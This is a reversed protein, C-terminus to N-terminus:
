DWCEEDASVQPKQRVPSSLIPSSSLPPRPSSPPPTRPPSPCKQDNNSPGGGGGSPSSSRRPSTSNHNNDVNSNKYFNNRNLRRNNFTNSKPPSSWSNGENNGGGNNNNNNFRRNFRGGGGGGGRFGGGGGGNYQSQPSTSRKPSHSDGGGGGGGGGNGGYSPKFFRPNNYKPNSNYPKDSQNQNYPKRFQNNNNNNGGFRRNDNQGEDSNSQEASCQHVPEEQHQHKHSCCTKAPKPTQVYCSLFPEHITSNCVQSMSPCQASPALVHQIFSYTANCAQSTPRVAVQCAHDPFSPVTPVQQKVINGDIDIAIGLNKLIDLIEIANELKFIDFALTPYVRRERQFNNLASVLHTVTQNVHMKQSSALSHYWSSSQISEYLIMNPTKIPTTPVSVTPQSNPIYPQMVGFSTATPSSLSPTMSSISSDSNYSMLTSQAYTSNSPQGIRNRPDNHMTTSPYHTPIPVNTPTTVIPQGYHLSSTSPEPQTQNQLMINAVAKTDRRFIRPDLFTTKMLKDINNPKNVTLGSLDVEYLFYPIYPFTLRGDIEECLYDRATVLIGRTDGARVPSPSAITEYNDHTPSAIPTINPSIRESDIELKQMKKTSIKAYLTSSYKYYEVNENNINENNHNTDFKVIAGERTILHVNKRLVPEHQLDVVHDSSHMHVYCSKNSSKSSTPSHKQKDEKSKSKTNRENQLSLNEEDSEHKEEASQKEMKNCQRENELKSKNAQREDSSSCSDTINIVEIVEKKEFPVRRKVEENSCRTDCDSEDNVGNSSDIKKIKEPTTSCNDNKADDDTINKSSRKQGKQTAKTTIVSKDKSSSSLDDNCSDFSVRRKVTSKTITINKSSKLRKIKPLGAAVKITVTKNRENKGNTKIKESIKRMPPDNNDLSSSAPCEIDVSKNNDDSYLVSMMAEVDESTSKLENQLFDDNPVEKTHTEENLDKECQNKTQDKRKHIKLKRPKYDKALIPKSIDTEQNNADLPEKVIDHEKVNDIISNSYSKASKEPSQSIHEYPPSVDDENIAERHEQLSPVTLEDIEEKENPSLIFNVLTENNDSTNINSKDEPSHTIHVENAADDNPPTSEILLVCGDNNNNNNDQSAKEIPSPSFALVNESADFDIMENTIDSDSATHAFNESVYGPVSLPQQDNSQLTEDMEANNTGRIQTSILNEDDDDDDLEIYDNDTNKNNDCKINDSKSTMTDPSASSNECLMDYLAKYKIVKDKLSLSTDKRIEQAATEVFEITEEEGEILRYQQDTDKYESNNDKTQLENVNNIDQCNEDIVLRSDEDDIEIIEGSAIMLNDEVANAEQPVCNEKKKNITEILDFIHNGHIIDLRHLQKLNLGMLQARTNIQYDNLREKQQMTLFNLDQSELFDYEVADEITLKNIIREKDQTDIVLPQDAANDPNQLTNLFQLVEDKNLQQIFNTDVDEFSEPPLLLMQLIHYRLSDKMWEALESNHQFQCSDGKPCLLGMYYYKCPFESHLYPCILQIPCKSTDMFSPCPRKVTKETQTSCSTKTGVNKKLVRKKVPARRKPKENPNNFDLKPRTGKINKIKELKVKPLKVRQSPTEPVAFTRQDVPVDSCGPEIAMTTDNLNLLAKKKRKPGIVKQKNVNLLCSSTSGYIVRVDVDVCSSQEQSTSTTIQQAVFSTDTKVFSFSSRGNTTDDMDGEKVQNDLNESYRRELISSRIAASKTNKTKTPTEVTNVLDISPSPSTKPSKATSCSNISVSRSRLQRGTPKVILQEADQDCSLNLQPSSM